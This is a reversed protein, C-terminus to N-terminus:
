RPDVVRGRRIATRLAIAAGALLVVGVAVSGWRSLEFLLPEDGIVWGPAYLSGLAAVYFPGCALVWIVRNTTTAVARFGFHVGAVMLVMFLAWGVVDAVTVTVGDGPRVGGVLFRFGLFTLAGTTLGGALNQLTSPKGTSPDLQAAVQAAYERPTGFAEVPDEGTEVVHAEVEALVDGVRTGAIDYMRLATHLEERYKELTTMM